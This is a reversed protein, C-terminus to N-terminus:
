HHGDENNEDRLEYGIDAVHEEIWADADGLPLLLVHFGEGPCACEAGNEVREEQRSPAHEEEAHDSLDEQGEHGHAGLALAVGEGRGAGLMVGIQGHFVGGEEDARCQEGIDNAADEHRRQLGFADGAGDGGPEQWGPNRQHDHHDERDHVFALEAEVALEIVAGM